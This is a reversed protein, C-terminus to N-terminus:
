TRFLQGRRLCLSERELRVSCQTTGCVVGQDRVLSPSRMIAAAHDTGAANAVATCARQTFLALPAAACRSLRTMDTHQEM